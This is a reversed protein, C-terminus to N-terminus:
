IKNFSIFSLFFVKMFCLELHSPLNRRSKKEFEQNMKQNRQDPTCSFM